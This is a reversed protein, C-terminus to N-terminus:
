TWPVGGLQLAGASAGLATASTAAFSTGDADVITGGASSEDV